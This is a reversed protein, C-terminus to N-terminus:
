FPIDDGASSHLSVEVHVKGSLALFVANGIAHAANKGRVYGARGLFSRAPMYRDGFEQWVAVDGINRTPNEKTGDGVMEDPVGIVAEHHGISLEIHDHLESTRELPNDPPAFGLEIKGPHHHGHLDTFGNLTSDALAPWAPFPGVGPQYHGIARQAEEQIMRGGERIGRSIAQEVRPELTELYRVFDSISNFERV